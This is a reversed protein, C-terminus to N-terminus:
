VTIVSSSFSETSPVRTLAPFTPDPAPLSPVHRREGGYESEQPPNSYYFHDDYSLDLSPSHSTGDFDEESFQEQILHRGSHQTVPTDQDNSPIAGQYSMSSVSAARELEQYMNELEEYKKNFIENQHKVIRRYFLAGFILIAFLVPTM